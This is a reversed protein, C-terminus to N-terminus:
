TPIRSAPLSRSLLGRFTEADFRAGADLSMAAATRLLAPHMEMGEATVTFLGAMWASRGMVEVLALLRLCLALGALTTLDTSRDVAEAWSRADRDAIALVTAGGDERRFLLRRVPGWQGSRAHARAAEWAGELAAPTVAPLAEPALPIAYSLSGDPASALTIPPEPM